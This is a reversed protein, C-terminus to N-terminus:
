LIITKNEYIIVRDEILLKLANSLVKKEITQGLERMKQWSYTHDVRTIDQEIIAGEDLEKTVYHATAGVIKVGRLFAQKYPNQGVFAPLFSHHINIIKQHYRNIFDSSLIRMYKALVILDINYQKLKDLIKTEHEQKSINEHSIYHYPINFKEVLSQLNQHNGIVCKINIPMDGSYHAILIDGLVHSEKTVMLVINKKIDSTIKITSEKPLIEKLEEKLKTTDTDGVFKTRLFFKKNKNDVYENQTEINLRNKYLTKSIKYILGIEDNTYIILKHSLFIRLIIRSLTAM